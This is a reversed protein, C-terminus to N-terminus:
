IANLSYREDAIVAISLLLIRDAKLISPIIMPTNLIMVISAIPCPVEDDMTSRNLLIPALRMVTEGPLDLAELTPSICHPQDVFSRMSSLKTANMALIGPTLLTEGFTVVDRWNM